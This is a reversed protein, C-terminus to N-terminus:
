KVEKMPKGCGCKGPKQSIYGCDCGDGCACAYKAKLSFAQEKGNVTVTAKDGEVKAITAKAMPKNCTCKADKRAMSGCNCDPGCACVYVTDGAKLAKVKEAFAALSLGLTLVMVLTVLIGKKM